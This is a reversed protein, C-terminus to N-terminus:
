GPFTNDCTNVFAVGPVLTGKGFNNRGLTTTSLAASFASSM